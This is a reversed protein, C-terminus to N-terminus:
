AVSSYHGWTKCSRIKAEISSGVKSTLYQGYPLMVDAHQHTIHLLKEM